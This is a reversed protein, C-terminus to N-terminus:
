RPWTFKAMKRCLCRISFRINFKMIKWSKQLTLPSTGFCVIWVTHSNWNRSVITSSGFTSVTKSTSCRRSKMFWTEWARSALWPVSFSRSRTISTALKSSSLQCTVHFRSYSIINNWNSKLRTNRSYGIFLVKSKPSFDCKQSDPRLDIELFLFTQWVSDMNNISRSMNM